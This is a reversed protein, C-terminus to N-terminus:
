ASGTVPIARFEYIEFPFPLGPVACRRMQVATMWAVGGATLPTPLWAFATEWGTCDPGSRSM